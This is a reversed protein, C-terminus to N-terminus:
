QRSQKMKPTKSNKQKCEKNQKHLNTKKSRDPKNSTNRSKYLKDVDEIKMQVRIIYHKIKKDGKKFVEM